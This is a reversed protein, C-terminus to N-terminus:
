SFLEGLRIKKLQTTVLGTLKKELFSRHQCIHQYHCSDHQEHCGCVAMDGEFIRLYDYLSVNHWNGALKYGGEKGEKSLLIKNKALAAAIKALFRHPLKTKDVLVGLSVFDTGSGLLSILLMGYDSQKNITLM